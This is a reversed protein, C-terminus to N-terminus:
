ASTVTLELDEARIRALPQVAAKLADMPPPGAESFWAIDISNQRERWTGTVFGNRIVLHAGRTANARREPAIIRPDATGPGLVWPDYGPVLVVADSAESARFADLDETLVLTECGDVLLSSVSDGLDTLWRTLLLRPVGLGETHWYRLNDLTAPGYARLYLLVASRGADDVSPLESWRPDGRLLQFTAQGERTPGFCIDGWWHLPKYLSDAGTGSAAQELHRLAPIRALHDGIERRTRPGSALAACIADRVPEWDDIAFRGQQQWRPKEWIRTATRVTLLTAAIDHTFVYSGGRFAYSRIVEGRQLADHLAGPKPDAQRVCIALDALDAPWGRLALVRQAIDVVTTGMRPTLAHRQLRLAMPNFTRGM